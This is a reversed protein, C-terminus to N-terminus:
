GLGNLQLWFLLVCRTTAPVCFSYGIGFLFMETHRAKYLLFISTNRYQLYQVNRM